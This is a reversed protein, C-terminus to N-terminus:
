LPVADAASLSEEVVFICACIDALLAPQILPLTIGGNMVIFLAVPSAELM